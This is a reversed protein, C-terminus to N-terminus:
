KPPDYGVIVKPHAQKFKAVAAPTVRTGQLAVMRLAKIKALDAFIRDDVKTGTLHLDKLQPLDVLKAVVDNGVATVALSLMELHKMKKLSDGVADSIRTGSLGLWKIQPCEALNAVAKDTFSPVHLEVFELKKLGKLKAIGEDSFHGPGSIFLKVLGKCQAVHDLLPDGHTPATFRVETVAKTQQDQVVQAQAKKLATAAEQDNAAVFDTLVLCCALSLLIRM